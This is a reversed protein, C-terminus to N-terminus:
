GVTEIIIIERECSRCTYHFEMVDPGEETEQDYDNQWILKGSCMPCRM